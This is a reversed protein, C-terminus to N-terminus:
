HHSFVAKTAKLSPFVEHEMMGGFETDDDQCVSVVFPYKSCESLIRSVENQYKTLWQGELPTDFSSLTDDRCPRSHFLYRDFRIQELVEREVMERLKSQSLKAGSTEVLHVIYDATEEVLNEKQLDEKVRHPSSFCLIFSSSSSNTVFGNRIKM